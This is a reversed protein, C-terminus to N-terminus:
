EAADRASPVVLVPRDAHQTVAHAVSGLMLSKLGTLGRTGLVIAKADAQEAEALIADAVMLERPKTSPRASLGARIAREAGEEARARASAENAADIEEIDVGDLGAWMGAGTRAMMEVFPEWVTLVVAPQGAFFEGARDIAAQSDASGDYAILIM